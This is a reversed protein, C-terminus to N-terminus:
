RFKSFFTIRHVEALRRANEELEVTLEEKMRLLEENQESKEALNKQLKSLKDRLTRNEVNCVNLQEISRELRDDADVSSVESCLRDHSSNVRQQQQQAKGFAAKLFKIKACLKKNAAESVALREPCSTTECGALLGALDGDEDSHQVTRRGRRTMRRLLSLKDRLSVNEARCKVLDEESNKANKECSECRNVPRQNVAADWGAFTNQIVVGKVQQLQDSLRKVGQLIDESVQSVPSEASRNSQDQAQNQLLNCITRMQRKIKVQDSKWISRPNPVPNVPASSSSETAVTPQRSRASATRKSRDSTRSSDTPPPVSTSRKKSSRATDGTEVTNSQSDKTSSKLLLSFFYRLLPLQLPLELEDCKTARKLQGLGFKRRGKKEGKMWFVINFFNSKPLKDFLLDLFLLFYKLNLSMEGAPFHYFFDAASVKKTWVVDVEIGM